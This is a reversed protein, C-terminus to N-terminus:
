KKEESKPKSRLTEFIRNASKVFLGRNELKFRSKATELARILKSELLDVKFADEETYKSERIGIKSRSKNMRFHALIGEAGPSDLTISEIVKIETEWHEIFIKLKEEM